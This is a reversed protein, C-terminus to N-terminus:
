YAPSRRNSDRGGRESSAASSIAATTTAGWGVPPGPSTSGEESRAGVCSSANGVRDRLDQSYPRAM